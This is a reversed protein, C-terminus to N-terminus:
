PSWHGGIKFNGQDAQFQQEVSKPVTYAHKHIPKFNPDM